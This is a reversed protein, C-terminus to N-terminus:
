FGFQQHIRVAIPRVIECEKKKMFPHLFQPVDKLREAFLMLLEEIKNEREKSQVIQLMLSQNYEAVEQYNQEIVAIKEMLVKQKSSIINYKKELTMVPKVEIYQDSTKRHVENLKEPDDRVFCPHVYIQIEGTEREKHFDYMNLQRVFSSFKKHKFYQPLISASFEPIKKIEFSLGSESWTVIHAHNPDSLMNFLRLLFKNPKGSTKKLSNM